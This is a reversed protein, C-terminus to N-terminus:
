RLAPLSQKVALAGAFLDGQADARALLEDAEFTLLREDRRKHCAEVEDWSVPTSATPRERARLSYVTATTKHEDNQSWDVLVKGPRLRKTMRSVVLNQMRQELVEAVRRAFPKTARYDTPTNLPV